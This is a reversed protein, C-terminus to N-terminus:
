VADSDPRRQERLILRLGYAHYHRAHEWTRYLLGNVEHVALEPYRSVSRFVELWRGYLGVIGPLKHPWIRGYYVHRQHDQHWSRVWAPLRTYGRRWTILDIWAEDFLNPSVVVLDLDSAASFPRGYTGPALSFGLRGSGVLTIQDQPISLGATVHQILLTYHDANDRFAFPVGAFVHNDVVQLLDTRELLEVFEESTQYPM